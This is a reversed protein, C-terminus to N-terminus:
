FIVINDSQKLKQLLLIMKENRIEDTSYFVSRTQTSMRMNFIIGYDIGSENDKNQKEIREISCIHEISFLEGEIEIFYIEKVIKKIQEQQNYDIIIQKGM